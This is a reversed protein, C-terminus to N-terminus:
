PRRLLHVSPNPQLLKNGLAAPLHADLGTWQLARGLAPTRSDLADQVPWAGPQYDRPNGRQLNYRGREANRPVALFLAGAPPPEARVRDAVGALQLLFLARARTQPDTFVPEDRQQAQQVLWREAYLFDKNEVYLGMGHAILMAGAVTTTLVRRRLRWMLGIAVGVVAVAMTLAPALYRPDLVLKSSFASFVAIWVAAFLTFLRVVEATREGAVSPSGAFWALAPLLWFTLGFGHSGILM